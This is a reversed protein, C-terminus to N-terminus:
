YPVFRDDLAKCLVKNEEQIIFFIYGIGTWVQILYKNQDSYESFVDEVRVVSDKLKNIEMGIASSNSETVCEQKRNWIMIPRMNENRNM